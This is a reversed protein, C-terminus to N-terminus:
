QLPVYFEQNAKITDFDDDEFRKADSEKNLWVPQGGPSGTRMLLHDNSINDDFGFAHGAEHATIKLISRATSALSVIIGDQNKETFGGARSEAPPNPQLTADVYGIRIQKWAPEKMLQARVGRCEASNLHNASENPKPDLWAQPITEGKINRVEVQIGIQRYIERMKRVQLVIQERKATPVDGAPSLYVINLTVKGVAKQAAFEVQADGLEPFKVVVKSGFDGFLTQDNTEHDATGQGNYYKDDDGDTVLLIWKSVWAGDEKTLDVDHDWTTPGAQFEGDTVAGHLGTGKINIKTLNPVIAPMTIRFHDRDKDAFGNDFTGEPYADLWRCFRIGQSPTPNQQEVRVPVMLMFKPQGGPYQVEAVGVGNDRIKRVHFSAPRVGGVQSVVDRFDIWQGISWLQAIDASLKTEAALWGVTGVGLWQPSLGNGVRTSRFAGEGRAVQVDAGSAVIHWELWQGSHAPDTERLTASVLAKGLGTVLVDITRPEGYSRPHGPTGPEVLFWM